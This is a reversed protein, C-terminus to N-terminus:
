FVESTEGSTTQQPTFFFTQHLYKGVNIGFGSWAVVPILSYSEVAPITQRVQVSPLSMTPRAAGHLATARLSLHLM